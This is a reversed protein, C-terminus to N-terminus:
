PNNPYGEEVRSLFRLLKTEDLQFKDILDFRRFLYYSLTSLPRGGSADALRFADFQWEDVKSLIQSVEDPMNRYLQLTDAEAAVDEAAQQWRVAALASTDGGLLTWGAGTGGGTDPQYGGPAGGGRSGAASTGNHATSSSASVGTATAERGALGPAHMVGPSPASGIPRLSSFTGDM